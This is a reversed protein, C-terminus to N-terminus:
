ELSLDIHQRGACAYNAATELMSESAVVIPAELCGNM